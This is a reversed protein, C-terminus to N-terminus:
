WVKCGRMSTESFSVWSAKPSCYRDTTEGHRILGKCDSGLDGRLLAGVAIIPNDSTCERAECVTVARSHELVHTWSRAETRRNGMSAQMKAVFGVSPRGLLM